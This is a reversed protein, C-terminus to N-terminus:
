LSPFPHPGGFVPGVPLRSVKRLPISVKQERRNRLPWRAAKFGEKSPHFGWFIARPPTSPKPRSVKRLPISVMRGAIPIRSWDARSVKRLPISVTTAGM